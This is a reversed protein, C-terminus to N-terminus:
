MLQDDYFSSHHAKPGVIEEKKIIVFSMSNYICPNFYLKLSAGRLEHMAIFLYIHLSLEYVHICICPSSCAYVLLLCM